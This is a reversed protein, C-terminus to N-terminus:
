AALQVTWAGIRNSSLSKRDELIDKDPEPACEAEKEM